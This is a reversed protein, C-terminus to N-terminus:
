RASVMLRRFFAVDRAVAADFEAGVFFHNNGAVTHFAFPKRLRRLEAAMRVSGQHPTSADGLAHQLMLPTQLQALHQEPDVDALVFAPGLAAMERALADIAPHPSDISDFGDARTGPGSRYAQQWADGGATAWLSAGRARGSALLAMLTVPGGMSHGWLFVNNTDADDLQQLGGLLAVVDEAYYASALRLPTFERGESQHHGRYDPLVVLFGAAAYAAPVPRYYNGPRWDRGEPTFGYRPPDPHFGHNAVLVPHGQQPPPTAPVAVMAHLRLGAHRYAVLYASFGPGGDIDGVRQLVTSRPALTRLSDLSLPAPLRDPLPDARGAAPLALAAAGALFRRRRCGSPSAGAFAVPARLASSGPAQRM